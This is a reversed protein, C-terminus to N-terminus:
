ANEKIPICRVAKEMTPCEDETTCPKATYADGVAFATVYMEEHAEKHECEIPCTEEAGSCKCIPLTM